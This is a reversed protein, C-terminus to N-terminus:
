GKADKPLGRGQSFRFSHLGGTEQRTPKLGVEGSVSDMFLPLGQGTGCICGKFGGGTMRYSVVM